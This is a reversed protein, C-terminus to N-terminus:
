TQRPVDVWGDLQRWVQRRTNDDACGLAQWLDPDGADTGLSRALEDLSQGPGAALRRAAAQEAMRRRRTPVYGLLRGLWDLSTGALRGSTSPVATLPPAGPSWPTDHRGTLIVVEGIGPCTAMKPMKPM